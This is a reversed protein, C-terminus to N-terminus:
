AQEPPPSGIAGFQAGLESSARYHRRHWALANDLFCCSYPDAYTANNSV